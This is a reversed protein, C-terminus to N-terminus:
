RLLMITGKKELKEGQDCLAELYYVLPMSSQEAGRIRGDWGYTPDNPPFNKAEFVMKGYRDYVSFRIISRIGRTIPYFVDNLNDGNPTFATPMLLNANKCEVIVRISDKSICGSDSRVEITYLYSELAQGGPSPCTTCSLQNSPSWQYAVVNDSYQPNLTFNSYYPLVIDDGAEVGPLSNVVVQISAESSFCGVSDRLLATYTTTQKPFVVPDYNNANTIDNTPQWQIIKGPPSVNLQVSDNLCIVADAQISATFPPFAKVQASDQSICGFRSTATIMYKTDVQPRAVVTDCTSCTLSAAPSWVIPDNHFAILTDSTSGVCVTDIDPIIRLFPLPNVRVAKSLTDFCGNIDIATLKVNFSDARPFIYPQPQYTSDNTSDVSYNWHWVLVSDQPRFPKSNNTIVYEENFCIQEPANFDLDPGKVEIRHDLWITDACSERGLDIAVYNSHMGFVSATIQQTASETPGVIRGVGHWTYRAFPDTYNDELTFLSRTNRCISSDPNVLRPRATYIAQSYRDSCGTISDVVRLTTVFRGFVPYTHLANIGSEDDTGDGFTWNITSLNGQSTNTFRYTNRETCTNSYNYTAIVGEVEMQFRGSAGLCGYYEPTVTVTKLGLTKYKHRIITDTTSAVQGDGFNWHYRTANTAKAIFVASDSGCIVTDQPYTVLNFPPTGFALGSFAFSNTCGENTTINLVPAYTGANPYIHTMNPSTNDIIDGDGFDWSYQSVSGGRPLEVGSTFNVTAPVCGRRTDVGGTIAPRRVSIATTQSAKCGNADTAVLTVNYNGFDSFSHGISTQATTEVPQGDDWHWEYATIGPSTIANFSVVGPTCIYNRDVTIRATAAPNIVITKSVTTTTRQYIVILKVTYTGPRTYRITPNASNSFNGNGFTWVYGTPNGSATSTFQITSPTCYLGDNSQFTFDASQGQATFALCHFLFSLLIRNM